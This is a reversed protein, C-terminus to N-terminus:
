RYAMADASEVLVFAGVVALVVVIAFGKVAGAYHTGFMPINHGPGIALAIGALATTM